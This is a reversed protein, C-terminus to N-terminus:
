HESTGHDLVDVNIRHIFVGMSEGSTSFSVGPSFRYGPTVSAEEFVPVSDLLISVTGKQNDLDVELTHGRLHFDKSDPLERADGQFLM